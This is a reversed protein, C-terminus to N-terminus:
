WMRSNLQEWSSTSSYAAVFMHAHYMLQVKKQGLAKVSSAPQAGEFSTLFTVAKHWFMECCLPFPQAALSVSETDSFYEAALHVTQEFQELCFIGREM